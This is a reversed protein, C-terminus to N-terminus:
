PSVGYILSRRTESKLDAKHVDPSAGQTKYIFAWTKM